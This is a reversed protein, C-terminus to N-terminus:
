GKLLYMMYIYFQKELMEKKENMCSYGTAIKPLHFGPPSLHSLRPIPPPTELGTSHTMTIDVDMWQSAYPLWLGRGDKNPQSVAMAVRGAKALCLATVM